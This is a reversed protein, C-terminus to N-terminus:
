GHQCGPHTLPEVCGRVDCSPFHHGGEQGMDYPSHCYNCVSNGEDMAARREPSVSQRVKDKNRQGFWGSM